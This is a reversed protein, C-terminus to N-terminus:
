PTELPRSAIVREEGAPSHRGAANCCHTLCGGNRSGGGGEYSEIDLVVAVPRGSPDVLVVPQGGSILDQLLDSAVGAVPLITSTM